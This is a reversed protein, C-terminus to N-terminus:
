AAVNRDQNAIVPQDVAVPLRLAFTTGGAAGDVLAVDGHHARAISRAVSLGLGTGDPRSTFFPDFIRDRLEVPVGPGNDVVIIEAQLTSASAVIQVHALAGAANLANTALNILASALTERNGTLMVEHDPGEIALQQSATVVPRLSNEVSDLLEKVTFRNGSLAAGRAFKLMDSVLQELDHLCTVARSLLGDRQEGPLERRNANTAYLLAAALPTRIQHALAAAMEGTATLRRHRALLDEIKRRDTIDTLLLAQGPGPQLPKQAINIRRGDRLELDGQDGQATAFARQRLTSWSEGVLPGGLLKNAVANAQAVLGDGDILLVGGPLAEILATLRQALAANQRSQAAQRRNASRLERRLRAVERELTRYSDELERSVANFTAFAAALEVTTAPM